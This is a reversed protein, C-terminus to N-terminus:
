WNNKILKYKKFEEDPLTEKTVNDYSDELKILRDNEKYQLKFLRLKFWKDKKCKMINNLAYAHKKTDKEIIEGKYNMLFPLAEGHCILPYWNYQLKCWDRIDDYEYFTNDKLYEEVMDELTDKRINYACFVFCNQLEEVSGLGVGIYEHENDYMGSDWWHDKLKVKSGDKLEIEFERGAFAKFNGSSHEYKLYDSFCNDKDSGAYSMGVKEYTVKPISDVMIYLHGDKNKHAKIIKM